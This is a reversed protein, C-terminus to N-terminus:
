LYLSSQICGGDRVRYRVTLLSLPNVQVAPAARREIVTIATCEAPQRERKPGRKSTFAPLPACHECGSGFCKEPGGTNQYVM